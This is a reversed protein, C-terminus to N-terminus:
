LFITHVIWLTNVYVYTHIFQKSADEEDCIRENTREDDDNVNNIRTCGTNLQSYRVSLWVCQIFFLTISHSPFYFTCMYWLEVEVALFLQTHTKKERMWMHSRLIEVPLYVAGWTYELTVCAIQVSHVLFVFFFFHRIFIIWLGCKDRQRNKVWFYLARVSIVQINEGPYVYNTYETNM